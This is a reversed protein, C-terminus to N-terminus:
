RPSVAPSIRRDRSELSANARTTWRKRVGCCARAEAEHVGRRAGDEHHVVLRRQAPHQLARERAVPKAHDARARGLRRVLQEPGLLRALVVQIGFQLAIQLASGSAGWLAAHISRLALGAPQAM